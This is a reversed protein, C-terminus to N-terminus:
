RVEHSEKSLYITASPCDDRLVCQRCQPARAKCIKRGHEILLMHAVYVESATLGAELKGHARDASTGEELLGLRLSVRHVHTDVPMVPRDLSFLLVCAATKPGVGHLATLWDLADEVPMKALFSLNFGGREARVDALVQQIRPAKQRALGGSRIAAVVSDTPASIVDNWCPFREKLSAFARDTNTDSTHQSLITSVLEDIPEPRQADRLPTGYATELKSIIISLSPLPIM